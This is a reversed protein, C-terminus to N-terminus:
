TPQAASTPDADEPLWPHGEALMVLADFFHVGHKAATALYSRIACFQEAGALTRMGGSVKQRLKIMRIQREAANNDPPIRWDTLFRLYDAQRDILRRALANHKKELKSFRARTQSIGIQAASHLYTIQEAVAAGDLVDRGHEIAEAVMVQLAVLADCAQGAWCWEGDGAADAVALLERQVHATCLQHVPGDPRQGGLPIGTGAEAAGAPPLAPGPTTRTFTDYPAWADHVAVGTFRPLVGLARIGELGRRAHCIILTWAQSTAVHVWHLRAAVRFGTEDFHVVEAGALRELVQGTFDALGAAARKVMAAVTGPSLPIGSLEALAMATRQRSLFQGAYLYVVIAAIRSGYQVPSDVGAPASGKTKHGCGCQREILQHETVEAKVPPLDFVQRREVSTVPAGALSNGCAGCCAPEHEEEHDPRAVQTLTKGDHGDQGGPKRGTKKRLSRPKPEGKALGDASPPQSSNKSTRNVQAELEAVRAVLEANHAQAQALEARLSAVLAALVEYSRDRDDPV